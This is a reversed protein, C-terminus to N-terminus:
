KKKVIRKIETAGSALKETTDVDIHAAVVTGRSTRGPTMAAPDLADGEDVLVGGRPLHVFNM